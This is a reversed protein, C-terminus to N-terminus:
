FCWASSDKWSCDGELAEFEAVDDDISLKAVIEDGVDGRVGVLVADVSIDLGPTRKVSRPGGRVEKFRGIM